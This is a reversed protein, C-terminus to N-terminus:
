LGIRGFAFRVACRRWHAASSIENLSVFTLFYAVALTVQQLHLRRKTNQIRSNIIRLFQKRFSVLAYFVTAWLASASIALLITLGVSTRTGRGGFMCWDNVTVPRTFLGVFALAAPVSLALLWPRRRGLRTRTRDSWRGVLPDTVADVVQKSHILWSCDM